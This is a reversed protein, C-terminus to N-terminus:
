PRTVTEDLNFLARAVLTWAAKDVPEGEGPAALEDAKLEGAALRARQRAFFEVLQRQEDPKPERTLVRRFAYRARDADSGPQQAVRAGLARAAEMFMADNLLTLAQLPTNSVERRPVCAEGSPADFTAFMAFPATRKSFTYLSRRYRDEGESVKWTLQGYAGETTVSEPQPPFVSPGGLKPSLLGSSRLVADRVLEADLRYRPARAWLLNEPDRERLPPAVDSAQRYTASTVLVRHLHKLSWRAPAPEGALPQPDMLEAALWDLLEPHTPPAGQYGFDETTAVLGRGFLIAWQRNATV